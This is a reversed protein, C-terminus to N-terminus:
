KRILSSVEKDIWPPRNADEIVAKPVFEDVCSLFMDYWCATSADIDNDVFVTDWSVNRLTSRLGSLDVKKLNYVKRGSKKLCKLKTLLSFSVALHNSSLDEIASIDFIEEPHNYFILDLISKSPHSIRTPERVVQTLFQSNVLNCFKIGDTSISLDIVYEWNISPMNFDGVIYIRGSTERLNALLCEFYDMVLSCNPPRYCLCFTIKFSNPSLLDCVLIESNQPELDPRRHALLNTKM